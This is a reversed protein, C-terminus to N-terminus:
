SKSQLFVYELFLGFNFGFVVAIVIFFSQSPWNYNYWGEFNLNLNFFIIGAGLGFSIAGIFGFFLLTLLETSNDLHLKRKQTRNKRTRHNLHNVEAVRLRDDPVSNEISYDLPMDVPAPDEFWERFKNQVISYQIEARMRYKNYLKHYFCM